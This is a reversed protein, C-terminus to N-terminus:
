NNSATTQRYQAIRGAADFNAPDQLQAYDNQEIINAVQQLLVEYPANLDLTENIEVKKSEGGEANRTSSSSGYFTVKNGNISLDKINKSGVLKAIGPFVNYFETQTFEDDGQNAVLREFTSQDKLIDTAASLYNAKSEKSGPKFKRREESARREANIKNQENQQNTYVSTVTEDKEAAYGGMDNYIAETLNQRMINYPHIPNPVREGNEDRQESGDANLLYEPKDIGAEWARLGNKGQFAPMRSAIGKGSKDGDAFLAAEVQGAIEKKFEALPVNQKTKIGDPGIKGIKYDADKLTKSISFAEEFFDRKMPLDAFLKEVDSPSYRMPTGNKTQGAITFNGGEDLVFGVQDGGRGMMALMLDKQEPKLLDLNINDYNEKFFAQKEQVKANSRKIDGMKTEISALAAARQKPDKMLQAQGFATKYSGMADVFGKDFLANKDAEEGAAKWEDNRFDKLDAAVQKEYNDREVSINWGEAAAQGLQGLSSHMQITQEKEVFTRGETYQSSTDRTGVPEQGAANVNQNFSQAGQQNFSPRSRGQQRREFPSGDKLRKLMTNFKSNLFGQEHQPDNENYTIGMSESYKRRAEKQALQDTSLTKQELVYADKGGKAEWKFKKWDPMLDYAEDYNMLGGAGSNPSAGFFGKGVDVYGKKGGLTVKGFNAGLGKGDLEKLNTAATNESIKLQKQFEEFGIPNGDEDMTTLEGAGQLQAEDAKELGEKAKIGKDLAAGLVNGLAGIMAGSNQKEGALMMLDLNVTSKVLQRAM